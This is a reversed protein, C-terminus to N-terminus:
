AASCGRKSPISGFHDSIASMWASSRSGCLELISHLTRQHSASRHFRRSPTCRWTTFREPYIHQSVGQVNHSSIPATACKYHALRYTTFRENPTMCPTLVSNRKFIHQTTLHVSQSEIEQTSAFHMTHTPKAALRQSTFHYPTLREARFLRACLTSALDRTRFAILVFARPHSARCSTPLESNQSVVSDPTSHQHADRSVIHLSVGQPSDDM